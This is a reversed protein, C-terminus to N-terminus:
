EKIFGKKKLGNKMDDKLRDLNKYGNLNLVIEGRPTWCKGDYLFEMPSDYKSFRTYGEVVRRTIECKCQRQIPNEVEVFVIDYKKDPKPRPKSPSKRNTFYYIIYLFLLVLILTLVYQWYRSLFDTM